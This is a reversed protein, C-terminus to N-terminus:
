NFLLDAVVLSVSIVNEHQNEVVSLMFSYNMMNMKHYNVKRKKQSLNQKETKIIINPNESLVQRECHNSLNFKSSLTEEGLTL